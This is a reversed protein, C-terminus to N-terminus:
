LPWELDVADKPSMVRKISVSICCNSAQTVSIEM